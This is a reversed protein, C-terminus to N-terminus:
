PNASGITSNVNIQWVGGDPHRALSKNDSFPGALHPSFTNDTGYSLQDFVTNSIDKLTLRDNEALGNGIYNDSLTITQASGPIGTVLSNRPIIVAFGHAPIASSTALITDTSTNDTITWQHVSIPHDTSNFLEVWEKNQDGKFYVENIVVDGPGPTPIPTPSPITSPTPTLTSTPTPIWATFSNGTSIQNNKFFSGTFSFFILGSFIIPFIVFPKTTPHPVLKIKKLESFISKLEEYIIITAPVIILLIFGKPTKAFAALYGLYPVSYVVKGLVLSVPTFNNDPQNNSDGATKIQNQNRAVIRHTVTSKKDIGTYFTVIDSIQYSLKPTVVVLSGTHIAPEMSGSSVIFFQFPKHSSYQSILFLGALLLGLFFIIDSVTKIIKSM